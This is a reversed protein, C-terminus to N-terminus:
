YNGGDTLTTLTNIDNGKWRDTASDYYLVSGEVPATADVDTLDGMTITSLLAPGQPGATAVVVAAPAAPATVEVVQEEVETIVAQGTNNVEVVQDNVETLVVQGVSKLDVAQQAVETVVVQGTSVVEVSNDM